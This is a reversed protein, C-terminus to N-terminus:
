HLSAVVVLRKVRHNLYAQLFAAYDRFSVCGNSQGNPGLMFTHALLGKRGLVKQENQPILRLAQVGHFLSERLELDYVNPPTAGLNKEAVQTPDDLRKGFGSHAELQSGDPMYVTHASIDYVATLEDSPPVGGDGGLQGDEATAYALRVPSQAKGFLKAFFKQVSNSNGDSSASGDAPSAAADATQTVPKQTVPRPANQRAVRQAPPSAKPPVAGTDPKAFISADPPVTAEAQRALTQPFTERSFYINFRSDLFSVYPRSNKATSDVAQSSPAPDKRTDTFLVCLLSSCFLAIVVLASARLLVDRNCTRFNYTGFHHRAAPTM